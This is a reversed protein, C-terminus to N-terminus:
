NGGKIVHEWEALVGLERALDELDVHDDAVINLQTNVVYFDGIDFIARAGRTKKLERAPRGDEAVFKRNIRQIIARESVPITKRAARKV